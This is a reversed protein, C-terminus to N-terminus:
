GAKSAGTRPACFALLADLEAVAEKSSKDQGSAIREYLKAIGLFM